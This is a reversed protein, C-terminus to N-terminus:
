GQAILRKHQWRMIFWLIAAIMFILMGFLITVLSQAYGMAVVAPSIDTAQSIARTAQYLGLFHAMFGIVICIIGWFLIANIGMGPPSTM